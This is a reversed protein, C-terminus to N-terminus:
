AANGRWLAAPAYVTTDNSGDARETVVSMYPRGDGPALQTAGHDAGEYDDRLRAYVKCDTGAVVFPVLLGM